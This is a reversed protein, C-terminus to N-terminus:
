MTIAKVNMNSIRGIIGKNCGKLLNWFFVFLFFREIVKWKSVDGVIVVMMFDIKIVMGIVVIVVVVSSIDIAGRYWM